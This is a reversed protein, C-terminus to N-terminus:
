FYDLSTMNIHKVYLNKSIISVTPSNCVARVAVRAKKAAHQQLLNEDDESRSAKLGTSSTPPRKYDNSSDEIIGPSQSNSVGADGSYEYSRGDLRLALGHNLDDDDEQKKVKRLQDKNKAELPLSRGLSLVVLDDEKDDDKISYCNKEQQKHDTSVIDGIHQQLTKYDQMMNSLVLKLRGNEERVEDM